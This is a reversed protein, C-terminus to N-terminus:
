TGKTKRLKHLLCVILDPHAQQLKDRPGAPQGQSSKRLEHTLAAVPSQAPRPTPHGSAAAEPETRARGSSLRIRQDSLIVTQECPRPRCEAGHPSQHGKGRAGDRAPGGRRCPAAGASRNVKHTARDNGPRHSM